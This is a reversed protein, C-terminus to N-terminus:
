VLSVKNISEIVILANGLLTAEQVLTSDEGTLESDPKIDGTAVVVNTLPEEADVGIADQGSQDVTTGTASETDTLFGANSVGAETQQELGEQTEMNSLLSVSAEPLEFSTGDINTDVIASTSTEKTLDSSTASTTTSNDAPIRSQEPNESTEVDERLSEM